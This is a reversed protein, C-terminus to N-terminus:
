GVVVTEEMDKGIREYFLLYASWWRKQRRYQTRNLSIILVYVTDISICVKEDCSRISRRHIRRWFM